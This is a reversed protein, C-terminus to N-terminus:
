RLYQTVKTNNFIIYVTNHEATINVCMSNKDNLIECQRNFLIAYNYFYLKKCLVHSTTKTISNMEAAPALSQASVSAEEWHLHQPLCREEM